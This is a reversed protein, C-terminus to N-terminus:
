DYIDLTLPKDRAESLIDLKGTERVFTIVDANAVSEVGYKNAIKEAASDVLDGVAVLANEGIQLFRPENAKRLLKDRDAGLAAVADASSGGSFDAASEILAKAHDHLINVPAMVHGAGM